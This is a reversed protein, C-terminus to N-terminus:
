TPTISLALAGASLLIRAQQFVSLSKRRLESSSDFFCYNTHCGSSTFAFRVHMNCSPQRSLSHLGGAMGLLKTATRAGIIASLNPALGTIRSEVYDLIQASFNVSGITYLNFGNLDGGDKGSGAQLM